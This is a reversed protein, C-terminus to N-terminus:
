NLTPSQLESAVSSRPPAAIVTNACEFAVGRASIGIEPLALKIGPRYLLYNGKLLLGNVEARAIGEDAITVEQNPSHM